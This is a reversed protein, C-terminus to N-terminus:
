CTSTGIVYTLLIGASLFLAPLSALTGRIRPSTCEATYIQAAPISLGVMTGMIFRGGFLLLQSGRSFGVM